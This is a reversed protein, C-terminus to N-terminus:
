ETLQRKVKNIIDKLVCLNKIKLKVKLILYIILRESGLWQDYDLLDLKDIKEKTVRAKPTMDSVGGNFGLNSISIETEETFNM